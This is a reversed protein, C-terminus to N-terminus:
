CGAFGDDPRMPPAHPSNRGSIPVPPSNTEPTSKNSSSKRWLRRISKVNMLGSKTNSKVLTIPEEGITVSDASFRSVTASRSRGESDEDKGVPELATSEPGVTVTDRKHVSSGSLRTEISSNTQSSPYRGFPDPSLPIVLSEAAYTPVPSPSKALAPHEEELDRKRKETEASIANTSAPVFPRPVSTTVGNLTLRPPSPPDVIRSSDGAAQSSSDRISSFPATPWATRSSNVTANASSSRPSRFHM